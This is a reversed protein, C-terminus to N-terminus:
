LLMNRNELYYSTATTPWLTNKEITMRKLRCLEIGKNSADTQLYFLKSFNSSKLVPSTRLRQKLEVFAAKCKDTWVMHNPATKTTINTLPTAISSYEPIM